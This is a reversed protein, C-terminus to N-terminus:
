GVVCLIELNKNGEIHELKAQRIIFVYWTNIAESRLLFYWPISKEELSNGAITGGPIGGTIIGGTTTTATPMHKITEM